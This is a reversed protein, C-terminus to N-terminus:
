LTLASPLYIDALSERDIINV